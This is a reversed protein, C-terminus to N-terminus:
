KHKQAMHIIQGIQLEDIDDKKLIKDNHISSFFEVIKSVGGILETNSILDLNNKEDFISSLQQSITEMAGYYESIADNNYIDEGNKSKLEVYRLYEQCVDNLSGLLMILNKM